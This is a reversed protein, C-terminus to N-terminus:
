ASLCYVGVARHQFLAENQETFRGILKDGSRHVVLNNEEMIAIEDETLGEYIIAIQDISIGQEYANAVVAAFDVKEDGESM